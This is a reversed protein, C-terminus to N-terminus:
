TLTLITQNTQDTQIFKQFNLFFDDKQVLENKANLSILSKIEKSLQTLDPVVLILKTDLYNFHDIQNFISNDRGNILFLIFVKTKHHTLLYDLSDFLKSDSTESQHFKVLFQNNSEMIKKVGNSDFIFADVFIDLDNRDIFNLLMNISSVSDNQDFKNFRNFNAIQTDKPSQIIAKNFQYADTFSKCSIPKTKSSFSSFFHLNNTMKEIAHYFMWWPEFKIQKNDIQIMKQVSQYNQYLQKIKIFFLGSIRSVMEQSMKTVVKGSQTFISHQQFEPYRQFIKQIAVGIKQGYKTAFPFIMSENEDLQIVVTITYNVTMMQNLLKIDTVPSAFIAFVKDFMDLCERDVLEGSPLVVPDHVFDGCHSCEKLLLWRILDISRLETTVKEDINCLNIGTQYPFEDRVIFSLFKLRQNQHWRLYDEFLRVILLCKQAIAQETSETKRQNLPKSNEVLIVYDSVM